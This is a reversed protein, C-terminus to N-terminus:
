LNESNRDNGIEHADEIPCYRKEFFQDIYVSVQKWQSLTSILYMFNHLVNKYNLTYTTM